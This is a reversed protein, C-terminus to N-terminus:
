GIATTIGMKKAREGPGDGNRSTHSFFNNRDMDDSHYQALNNLKSSLSVPGVGHSQRLANLLLLM